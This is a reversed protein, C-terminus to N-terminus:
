AGGRTDIGHECSAFECDCDGDVRFYDAEDRALKRVKCKDCHLSEDDGLCPHIIVPMENCEECLHFPSRHDLHVCQGVYADEDGANYSDKRRQMDKQQCEDSMESQQCDDEDEDEDPDPIWPRCCEEDCDPDIGEMVGFDPYELDVDGNENIKKQEYMNAFRRDFETMTGILCGRIAAITNYCPNYKFWRAVIMYLIYTVHGAPYNEQELTNCLCDLDDKYENRDEQYIYPM